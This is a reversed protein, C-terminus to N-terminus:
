TKWTMLDIMREYAPQNTWIRFLFFFIQLICLASLFPPPFAPHLVRKCQTKQDRKYTITPLIEEPLPSQEFHGDFCPWGNKLIFESNYNDNAM